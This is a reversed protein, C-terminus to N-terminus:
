GCAYDAGLQYQEPKGHAAARALNLKSSHPTALQEGSATIVGTM